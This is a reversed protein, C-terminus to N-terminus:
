QRLAKAKAYLAKGPASKGGVPVFGTLGLAKRAAKCADVWAKAKSGAYNKKGVASKKKSVIRGTKSKTLAAKTLGSSTKEKGGLFVSVKARPGKAIKSVKMAKMAKKMVAKM